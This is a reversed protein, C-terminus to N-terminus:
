IGDWEVCLSEPASRIFTPIAAACVVRILAGKVDHHPRRAPFWEQEILEAKVREARLILPQEGHRSLQSHKFEGALDIRLELGFDNRYIAATVKSQIGHLTWLDRM